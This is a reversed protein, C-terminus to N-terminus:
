TMRFRRSSVGMEFWGVRKVARRIALKPGTMAFAIAFPISALFIFHIRKNLVHGDFDIGSTWIVKLGRM